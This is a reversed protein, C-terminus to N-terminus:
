DLMKKCLDFEILLDIKVRSLQYFCLMIKKIVHSVNLFSLEEVIIKTVEVVEEIGM